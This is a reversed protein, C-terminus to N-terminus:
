DDAVWALMAHLEEHWLSGPTFIAQQGVRKAGQLFEVGAGFLGKSTELHGQGM